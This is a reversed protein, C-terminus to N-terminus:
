GSAEVAGQNGAVIPNVWNDYVDSNFVELWRGGLRLRPLVESASQNLLWGWGGTSFNM